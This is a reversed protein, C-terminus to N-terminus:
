RRPSWSLAALAEVVDLKLRKEVSRVARYWGGDSLDYGLLDGGRAPAVEVYNLRPSDPANAAGRMANSVLVLPATM